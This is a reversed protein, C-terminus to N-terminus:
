NARALENMEQIRLDSLRKSTIEEADQLAICLRLVQARTANAVDFDAASQLEAVLNEGLLGRVTGDDQKTWEQPYDAASQARELYPISESTTMVDGQAVSLMGQLWAAGQSFFATATALHRIDHIITTTTM